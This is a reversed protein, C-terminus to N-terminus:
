AGKAATCYQRRVTKMVIWQPKRREAFATLGEVRDKTALVAQYAEREAALGAERGQGFGQKMARKAARVAVPENGAIKEALALACCQEILTRHPDTM